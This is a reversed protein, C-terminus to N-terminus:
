MNNIATAIDGYSMKIRALTIGGNNARKPDIVKVANEVVINEKSMSRRRPIEKIQFLAKFEQEDITIEAIIVLLLYHIDYSRSNNCDFAFIHTWSVLM